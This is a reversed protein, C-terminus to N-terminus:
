AILGRKHAEEAALRFENRGWNRWNRLDKKHPKLVALLDADSFRSFVDRIKDIISIM